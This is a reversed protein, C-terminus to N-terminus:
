SKRGLDIWQRHGRKGLETFKDQSIIRATKARCLRPISSANLAVNGARCGGTFSQFAACRSFAGATKTTCRRHKIPV